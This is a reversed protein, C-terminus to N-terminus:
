EKGLNDLPRGVPHEPIEWRTTELQDDGRLRDVRRAAVLSVTQRTGCFPCSLPYETKDEPLKSLDYHYTFSKDCHGCQTIRRIRSSM